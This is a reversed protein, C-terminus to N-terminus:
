DQKKEGEEKKADRLERLRRMEERIKTLCAERVFAGRSPWYGLTPLSLSNRISKLPIVSCTFGHKELEAGLALSVGRWEIFQISPRRVTTKLSDTYLNASATSQAM